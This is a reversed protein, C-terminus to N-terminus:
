CGDADTLMRALACAAGNAAEADTNQVKTGTFCTLQAGAAGAAIGIVRVSVGGNTRRKAHM